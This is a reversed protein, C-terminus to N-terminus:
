LFPNELRTNITNCFVKDIHIDLGLSDGQLFITPLGLSAIM